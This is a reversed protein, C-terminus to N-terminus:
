GAGQLAAVVSQPDQARVMQAQAPMAFAVLAAVPGLWKLM